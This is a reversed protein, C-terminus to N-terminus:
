SVTLTNKIPDVNKIPDIDNKYILQAHLAEETQQEFKELVRLKHAM